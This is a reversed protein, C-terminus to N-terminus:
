YFYGFPGTSEKDIEGKINLIILKIPVKRTAKEAAMQAMRLLGGCCPVEMIVVTLTNIKADDIMAKIKDIYEQTVHKKQNIKSRSIKEKTEKTHKKGRMPVKAVDSINFVCPEDFHARGQLFENEFDDLDDALACEIELSWDFANKGYKNYSNQLIPNIHCGKNLLRFHEHIRKKVHQSQGVYSQGTVKNRIKYIGIHDNAYPM